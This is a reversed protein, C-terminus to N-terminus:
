LSGHDEQTQYTTVQVQSDFFPYCLIPVHQHAHGSNYLQVSHM